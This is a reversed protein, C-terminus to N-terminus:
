VTFFILTQAGGVRSFNLTPVDRYFQPPPGIDLVYFHILFSLISRGWGYGFNLQFIQFQPNQNQPINM